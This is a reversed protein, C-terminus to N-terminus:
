PTTSILGATNSLYYPTNATLELGALGFSATINRFFGVTSLPSKEKVAHIPTNLVYRNCLIFFLSEIASILM